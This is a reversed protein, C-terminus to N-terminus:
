DNLAQKFKEVLEVPTPDVNNLLALYISVYDGLAMTWLLQHLVTDGEPIITEPHPRSGSLLKETIEFRKKTREHELDSSIEIVTFPKDIPQGSWGIFENHNFEPYSNSWALNKANENFCIKWKNAAPYLRPGSYIIATKGMVEQALQKAQNNSSPVDPNWVSVKDRLWEGASSLENASGAPVLGIPELLQVIGKWFYMSSMRPQFGSPISIATYGNQKAQDLLKGGSTMVVIQAKKTSADVLCSLTEETNGSYSSTIVLTNEDVYGPLSYDRVIEFPVKVGPWDQVFMAPWASGGMGAVVVNRIETTPKYDVNFDHTLQQWQKQAVGLADHADRSHIYKLDDLM